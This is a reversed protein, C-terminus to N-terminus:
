GFSLVIFILILYKKWILGEKEMKKLDLGRKSIKGFLIGFFILFFKGDENKLGGGGIGVSQQHPDYPPRYIYNYLLNYTNYSDFPTSGIEGCKYKSNKFLDYSINGRLYIMLPGRYAEIRPHNTAIILQLKTEM